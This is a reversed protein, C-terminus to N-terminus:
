RGFKEVGYSALPTQSKGAYNLYTWPLLGGEITAAFDKVAQVWAQVKPYVLAEQEPTRVIAVALWLIGNHQQHELGMINGGAEASRQGFLTPLPQFLCQTIFDGSRILGKLEAVVAEHLEM